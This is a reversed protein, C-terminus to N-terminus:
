RCRYKVTVLHETDNRHANARKDITSKTTSSGGIKKGENHCWVYYHKNKFPPCKSAIGIDDAVPDDESGEFDDDM